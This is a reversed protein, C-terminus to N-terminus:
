STLIWTENKVFRLSQRGFSAFDAAIRQGGPVKPDRSQDRLWSALEVILQRLDRRHSHIDQGAIDSIFRQFRYRERDLVICRKLKQGGVGFRKAGLFVGLELPMNFRPLQSEPDLETRSIDHIGYRYRQIINCIKDFRNESADDTELASRARFGCRIVVFVIARFFILYDSDFPCNVFVDRNRAPM